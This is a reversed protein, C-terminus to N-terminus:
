RRFAAVNEAAWQAFDRAPKGTVDLINSNVINAEEPPDAYLGLAFDIMEQPVGQRIMKDRAQEATLEVLRVDRGLAQAILGIKDRLCLRQPGTLWYSAGAHGPETLACAAVAAIDAEHVDAAYEDVFPEEVVGAQVAEAHELSNAMFGTPRLYTWELSSARVAPELSSEEWGGLMTAKQVGAAELSKVLTSGDSLPAYQEAGGFNVLHVGVVGQLAARLSEPQALDGGVVDVDSPFSAQQPTRTLARVSVGRERLAEVVHRGVTGTAGAVLYTM